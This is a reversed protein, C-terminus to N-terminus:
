KCIEKKVKEPIAQGLTEAKVLDECAETVLKLRQRALARNYFAIAYDARYLLAVTYDEAAEKYRGQKSLVNGRNLWAKEYKENVEIAQTYDSFAGKLDNLREKVIGRNLWIEPDKQDIELAKTYDELAGKYYGGEMRQFARALYPQLMSSDSEIAKELEDLSEEANGSSRKLTAINHRAATHEPNLALAKKYDSYATTDQIAQKAIGRNVYYDPEKAQLSIASDLWHIAPKYNKLRTEVLGLYNLILPTISSQATTIQNAGSGSASMRYYIATTEGPPLTLLKEFYQKAQPFLGLRYQIVAASYLANPQDPNSELYIGYDTNAGALDQLQERTAARTLYAETLGPSERLCSNLLALAEKYNGNEYAEKGQDYLKKASVPKEQALAYASSLIITIFCIIKM